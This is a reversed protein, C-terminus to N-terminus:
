QYLGTKHMVKTFFRYFVSLSYFTPRILEVFQAYIKLEGLILYVLHMGVLMEVM